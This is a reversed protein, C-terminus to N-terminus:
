RRGGLAFRKKSAVAATAPAEAFLEAALKSVARAFRGGDNALVAPTARNIAAPVEPDDPLEFSIEAELAEEIGRRGVGGPSGLRNAVISVRDRSFGLRDLTELGIRVNKLSTIEPNCVLLLQDTRDLAALVAGDFLPGTDIVVAGYTSRAADLVAGLEAQGLIQAEEPRKPAALLSLSTKPETCVFASLKEADIDGSSGALDAITARPPVALALAADGFQLDLDVLLTNVGSRAAAVAINTALVTKGSGGKPSFVTVVKGGGTGGNNLSAKRLAFLLTEVPQPLVIVDAAGVSLGADVIGNPEGYAALILPADSLSRLSRIDGALEKSSSSAVVHLAVDVFSPLRLGKGNSVPRVMTVASQDDLEPALEDAAPGSLLVRLSAAHGSRHM